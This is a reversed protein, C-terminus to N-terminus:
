IKAEIRLQERPNRLRSIHSQTVGYMEALKDQSVGSSSRIARVDDDSLKASGNRSGRATRGHSERDAANEERTKWSLHLPSVCGEGGNGCAHAADHLPSPAQGYARECLLRSVIKTDDDIRVVGYGDANRSFPWTLCGDGDFPVAVEELFAIAEGNAARERYNPSGGKMYRQYHKKCYNRAEHRKGCGPISCLRSTAM